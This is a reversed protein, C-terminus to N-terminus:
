TGIPLVVGFRCALVELDGLVTKGQAKELLHREKGLEKEWLAKKVQHHEKRVKDAVEVSSEQVKQGQGKGPVKGEGITKGEEVPCQEV